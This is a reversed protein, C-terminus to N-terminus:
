EAIRQCDGPANRVEYMCFSSIIHVASSAKLKVRDRNEDIVKEIAKACAANAQNSRRLLDIADQDRTEMWSGKFIPVAAWETKKSM